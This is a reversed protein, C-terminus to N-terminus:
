IIKVPSIQHEYGLQIEKMKDPEMIIIFVHESMYSGEYVDFHLAVYM